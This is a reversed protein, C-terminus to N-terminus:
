HGDDAIYEQEQRVVGEGSPQTEDEDADTEGVDERQNEGDADIVLRLHRVLDRSQHGRGDHTRGDHRQERTSHRTDADAVGEDHRQAAQRIQTKHRRSNRFICLECNM